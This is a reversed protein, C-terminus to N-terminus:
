DTRHQCNRVHLWAVTCSYLGVAAHCASLYSAAMETYVVYLSECRFASLYWISECAGSFVDCKAIRIVKNEDSNTVGQWRAYQTVNGKWGTYHVLLKRTLILSKLYILNDPPHLATQYSDCPFILPQWLQSYLVLFGQVGGITTHKFPFHRDIHHTTYYSLPNLMPSAILLDHTQSRTPNHSCLLQPWTTQM